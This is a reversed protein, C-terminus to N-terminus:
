DDRAGHRTLRMMLLSFSKRSLASCLVSRYFHHSRLAAPSYWKVPLTECHRCRYESKGSKSKLRSQPLTEPHHRAVHEDLWQTPISIGCQGCARRKSKGGKLVSAKRLASETIRRLGVARKRFLPHQTAQRKFSPLPLGDKRSIRKLRIIRDSHRTKNATEFAKKDKEIVRLWEDMYVQWQSCCVPDARCQMGLRLSAVSLVSTRSTRISYKEFLARERQIREEPPAATVEDHYERRAAMLDRTLVGHTAEERRRKTRTVTPLWPIIHRDIKLARPQRYRNKPLLFQVEDHYFILRCHDSCLRLQIQLLDPPNCTGKRCVHCRGLKFLMETYKVSGFLGPKWPDTIGFFDRMAAYKVPDRIFRMYFRPDPPPHPLNLSSRALLAGNNHDVVNRFLHCTNRVAFL